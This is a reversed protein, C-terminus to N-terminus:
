DFIDGICCLCNGGFRIVLGVLFGVLAGIVAAQFAFHGILGGVVTTFILWILTGM